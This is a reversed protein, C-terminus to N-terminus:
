SFLLFIQSITAFICFIQIKKRMFSSDVRVKPRQFLLKKKWKNILEECKSWGSLSPGPWGPCSLWSLVTLTTNQPFPEESLVHQVLCVPCPLSHMVVFVPYCPFLALSL